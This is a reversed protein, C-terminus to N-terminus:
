KQDVNSNILPHFRDKTSDGLKNINNYLYQIKSDAIENPLRSIRIQIILHYVKFDFASTFYTNKASVIPQRGYWRFVSYKFRSTLSCCIISFLSYKQKGQMETTMFVVCIVKSDYLQTIYNNLEFSYKYSYSMHLFFSISSVV